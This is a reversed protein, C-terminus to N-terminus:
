LRTGEPILGRAHDGKGVAEPAEQAAATRGGADAEMVRALAGLGQVLASLDEEALQVLWDHLRDRRGERLRVALQRGGGTLEVFTRRRDAPDEVREVLGQQVLREVLISTASQGLNLMEALQGITLKESHAITFLAKIQGIPMELQVWDPTNTGVITRMMRRYHDIAEELLRETHDM